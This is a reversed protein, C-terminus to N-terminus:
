SICNQNWGQVKGIIQDKVYLLTEKKERGWSTRHGMYKGTCTVDLMCLIECMSACISSHTNSSFVVNSKTLSLQQGYTTCFAQFIHSINQCNQTTAKLLLLTDDLFLLHAITPVGSNLQTGQLLDTECAIKIVLSLVESIFLFLYPTIPDGQWIGHSPSFTSGPQGNIVVTFNVTIVYSM